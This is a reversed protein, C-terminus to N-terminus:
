KRPKEPLSDGELARLWRRAAEHRVESDAEWRAALARKLAGIAEPRRGMGLWAAAEAAHSTSEEPYLAALAQATRLALDPRGRTMESRHRDLRIFPDVPALAVAAAFASDAEPWRGLASYANALRDFNSGRRPELAVARRASALADAALSDRGPGPPTNAVGALAADCRLRWLQDERPAAASARAAWEGAVRAALPRTAAPLDLEQLLAGQSKQAAALARFGGISGLVVALVVLGALVLALAPPRAAPPASEGVGAPRLAAPMASITVFLAAGALGVPNFLGAVLLAALGAFLAARPIEIAREEEGAVRRPQLAVALVTVWVLGVLAGLLGLTALVQLATSHAHAPDGLWSNRWYRASQVAPFALGFADPGVGLLPRRTTITFVARAMEVRAPASEARPDASEALRAAMPGRLSIVAWVIALALAAGIALLRGRDPRGAEVRFIAALAVVAGAAAGLFASRSLTAAIAAGLLALSWTLWGSRGREGALVIGIGLAGALIAGLLIANGSTGFARLVAGAGSPYRAGTEWHLPDLGARQALGYVAALVACTLVVLLTGRVHAVSAHSRRAGAYLGALALTTLLGERQGIEGAWSLRPSLGFLTSLLAVAVWAVVTLDIARVVDPTPHDLDRARPAGWREAAVFALLPLGVMQLAFAKPGSFPDLLGPLFLLIAAALAARM